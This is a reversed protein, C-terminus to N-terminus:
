VRRSAAAFVYGGDLQHVAHDDGYCRNIDSIYGERGRGGARRNKKTRPDVVSTWKDDEEEQVYFGGV